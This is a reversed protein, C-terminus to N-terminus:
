LNPNFVHKCVFFIYQVEWFLLRERFLLLWMACAYQLIAVPCIAFSPQCARAVGACVWFILTAQGRNWSIHYRLVMKNGIIHISIQGLLM